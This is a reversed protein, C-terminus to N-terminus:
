PAAALAAATGPRTPAPQPAATRGATGPHPMELAAPPLGCHAALDAARRSFGTASCDGLADLAHSLDAMTRALEARDKCRRLEGLAGALTHPRLGPEDTAALLRLAVARHRPGLGPLALEETLLTRAQGTRELRLLTEAADSRWPLHPLQGTGHLLALRGTTCFTDLADQYRHAALHLRGRARLWPAASWRPRPAPGALHPAAEEHRGLAILAEARVAAPWLRLDGSRPGAAACSAARAAQHAAAPLEGLQLLAEAHLARFATAWAPTPAHPHLKACWAAARHPHGTHLLVRAAHLLAPGAAPAPAPTAFRLFREAARADGPGHASLRTHWHPAAGSPSSHRRRQPRAPLPPHIGPRPRESRQAAATGPTPTPEMPETFRLGSPRV